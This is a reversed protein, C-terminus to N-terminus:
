EVKVNWLGSISKVCGFEVSLVLVQQIWQFAITLSTASHGRDYFPALSTYSLISCALLANHLSFQLHFPMAELTQGLV